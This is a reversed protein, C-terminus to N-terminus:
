VDNRSRRIFDAAREGIMIAPANTNGSPVTPMISADAVRLGSTGHVRLQSDVVALADKGIQCTGTPHLAGQAMEKVYQRYDDKSTMPRGPHQERRILPRLAPQNMIEQGLRVGEAMIDLDYPDSLYNPVIRPQDLPDPSRLEIFGRSRPRIQCANVTCGYGSEVPTVGAEVGSGALFAFQIDPHPDDPNAWWFAGGEIINSCVPGKRFLAYQLGAWAKWHLKKYKDYGDPGNLEYILYVDMHDQLGRGVGPLDHVVPIGLDNLQAGPGIGSLLLLRPSNIAGASLIVERAAKALTRVGGCMYEVGMARKGEFLIRTVRSGTQVSLNTRKRAPKLYCVAASARRGNRLTLQYLGSGAQEGGNFDAVYPIGAQQCAQLWVKTLPSVHEPSSVHLPGGRAHALGAFTDNDEAKLFFPLVDAYSWGDAGEAAWRDYDSPIGRMYLMANVSSGGGLVRAQVMTPPSAKPNGPTPEQVFRQLLAGTATKYVMVPLHIEINRDEPGEELLLVSTGADESLRSAIVCGASGGGIVIYDHM